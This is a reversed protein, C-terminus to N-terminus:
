PYQKRGYVEDIQIQTKLVREAINSKIETNIALFHKINLQKLLTKLQGKYETGQYMRLREYKIDAENFISKIAKTM